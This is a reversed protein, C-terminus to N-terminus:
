LRRDGRRLALQIRPPMPDVRVVRGEAGVREVTFAALRGTGCGVDLVRDARGIDLLAIPEKGHTFQPSSLEDHGSAM